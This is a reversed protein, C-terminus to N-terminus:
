MLKKLYKRILLVLTKIKLCRCTIKMFGTKRRSTKGINEIKKKKTRPDWYLKTAIELM